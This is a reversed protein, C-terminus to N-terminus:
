VAQDWLVTVRDVYVTGYWAESPLGPYYYSEDIHNNVVSTTARTTWPSTVGWTISGIRCTGSPSATTSRTGGRLDPDAAGVCNGLLAYAGDPGDNAMDFTICLGGWNRLEVYTGTLVAIEFRQSPVDACEGLVLESGVKNPNLATM